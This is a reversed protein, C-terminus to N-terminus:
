HEINWKAHKGIVKPKHLRDSMTLPLIHFSDMFGLALTPQFGSNM